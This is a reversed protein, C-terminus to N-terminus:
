PQHWAPIEVDPAAEVVFRSFMFLFAIRGWAWLKNIGPVFYLLWGAMRLLIWLGFALLPSGVIMLLGASTGSVMFAALLTFLWLM